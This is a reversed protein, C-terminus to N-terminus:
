LLIQPSGELAGQQLPKVNFSIKDTIASFEGEIQKYIQGSYDGPNVLPGSDDNNLNKYAITNTSESRLDWNIRNFGATNAAKIKRIIENKSSYIFLWLKPKMENKEEELLNWNPVSLESNNKEAKKEINIRREEQTTYKEKLYYTFNVGFPPNDAVFYNDGQAAKRRGGLIRKQKYWYADKPKFLVGEEIIKSADFNRLSSYDDLIYIGRGFTGLVLDDESKQIAIDRVSINPIGNNLKQWNEGNNITFYLGFESALFMLNSDIHDQVIRWLM